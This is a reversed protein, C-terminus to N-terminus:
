MNESIDPDLTSVECYLENNDYMFASYCDNKNAKIKNGEMDTLYIHNNEFLYGYENDPIILSKYEGKYIDGCSTTGCGRIMLTNNDKIEFQIVYGNGGSPSYWIKGIFPLQDAYAYPTILVILCFILKKM